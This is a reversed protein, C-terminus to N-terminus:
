YNSESWRDAADEGPDRLYDERNTSAANTAAKYRESTASYAKREQPDYAIPDGKRIPSGTQACRSNFKAQMLKM